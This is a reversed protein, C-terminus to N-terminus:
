PWGRLYCGALPQVKCCQFEVADSMPQFISSCFHVFYNWDLRFRAWTQAFGSVSLIVQLYLLVKGLIVRSHFMDVHCDERRAHGDHGRKPVANVTSNARHIIRKLIAQILSPTFRSTGLLTTVSLIQKIDHWVLRFVELPLNCTVSHQLSLDKVWIQNMQIPSSLQALFRSFFHSCHCLSNVVLGENRSLSSM